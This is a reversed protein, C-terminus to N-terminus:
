KNIFYTNTSYFNYYVFSMGILLEDRGVCASIMMYNGILRNPGRNNFAKNTAYQPQYKSEQMLNPSPYFESGGDLYASHTTPAELGYDHGDDFHPGLALDDHSMDNLTHMSETIHHYAGTM